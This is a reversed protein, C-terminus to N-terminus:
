INIQLKQCTSNYTLLVSPFGMNQVLSKFLCLKKLFFQRRLTDQIRSIEFNVYQQPTEYRHRLLNHRHKNPEMSYANQLIKSITCIRLKPKRFHCIFNLTCLMSYGAIKTSCGFSLLEFNGISSFGFSLILTFGNAGM